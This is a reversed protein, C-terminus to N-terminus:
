CIDIGVNLYSEEDLICEGRQIKSCIGEICESVRDENTDFMEALAEELEFVNQCTITTLTTYDTVKYCM